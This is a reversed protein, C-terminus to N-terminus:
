NEDYLSTKYKNYLFSIGLLLIGLLIFIIARSLTTMHSLDYLFLKLLTFGLLGFAAFRLHAKRRIIGYLILVMAFVGWFISLSMKYANPVDTIDLWHLLESSLIWLLTGSLIFNFGIEMKRGLYNYLRYTAFLIATVFIFSIYRIYLNYTGVEFYEANARALYSERLESLDYLGSTLFILLSFANFGFILWLYVKKSKLITSLISLVSMFLLSYHILWINSFRKIDHNKITNEYGSQTIIKLSSDTYVQDWYNSIEIYFTFFTTLVILIPVIVVMSETLGNLASSKHKKNNILYFDFLLSFIVFASTLFTLNWFAKVKTEPQDMIYNFYGSSWDQILSFFALIILPYSLYEYIKVGSKRGIWLLFLAEGAWFMTVWGGSFQVPFAITLFVLVLGAVLYFLNRDALKNLYIIFAVIFHIVATGITFLGLYDERAANNSVLSYGLGYFIFSNFVLLVIDLFDFRTRKLLKYLIFTAFFVIFNVILFVFALNFNKTPNFAELYWTLYILWTIAFASLYLLKWYRIIAIVLIGINIIATYSFLFLIQEPNRSFLFPVAYAGVLGIHAIVQRNYTIAAVVTAATFFVLLSFTIAQPILEYFSYAAYTIFYLIAMAGSILVASFGEYKSKLKIAFGLLGLGLIYGLIIRTQPGILDNEIAFKAGISVGIVLIVIGIKNFLNEGIFREFSSSSKKQMTKSRIKKSSIESPININEAKLDTEPFSINAPQSIAESGKVRQLEEQLENIERNFEVQRALLEDLKKNLQEYIPNTNSM